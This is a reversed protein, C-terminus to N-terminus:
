RFLKHTSDEDYVPMSDATNWSNRFYIAFKVSLHYSNGFSERNSISYFLIPNNTLVVDLVNDVRTPEKVLQLGGVTILLDLLTGQVGDDHLISKELQYISM